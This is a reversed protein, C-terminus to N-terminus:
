SGRDGHVRTDREVGLRVVSSAQAAPGSSGDACSQSRDCLAPLGM